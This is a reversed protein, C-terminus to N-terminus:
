KLSVVENVVKITEMEVLDRLAAHVAQRSVKREKVVAIRLADRGVGATGAETLLRLITQRASGKSHGKAIADAM